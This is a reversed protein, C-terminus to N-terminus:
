FAPEDEEQQPVPQPQPVQTCGTEEDKKALRDLRALVCAEYLDCVLEESPTLPKDTCTARRRKLDDFARTVKVVLEVGVPIYEVTALEKRISTKIM